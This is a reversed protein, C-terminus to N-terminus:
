SLKELIQSMRKAMEPYNEEPVFFSKITDEGKFFKIRSGDDLEIEIRNEYEDEKITIIKEEVGEWNLDLGQFSPHDSDFWEFIFDKILSINQSLKLKLEPPIYNDNQYDLLYFHLTLMQVGMLQNRFQQYWENYSIKNEDFLPLFNYHKECAGIDIYIEYDDSFSDKYKIKTLEM